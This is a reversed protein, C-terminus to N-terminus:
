EAGEIFTDILLDLITAISVGQEMAQQKMWHKARESVRWNVQTTDPTSPKRGAGSRAGGWTKPIAQGEYKYQGRAQEFNPLGNLWEMLEEQTRLEKFEKIRRNGNKCITSLQCVFPYPHDIRLTIIEVVRKFDNSYLHKIGKDYSYVNPTQDDHFLRYGEFKHEKM